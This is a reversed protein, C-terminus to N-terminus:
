VVCRCVYLLQWLQPKASNPRQTLRRRQRTTMFCCDMKRGPQFFISQRMDTVRHRSVPVCFYVYVCVQVDSWFADTRTVPRYQGAAVARRVYNILKIRAFFDLKWEDIMTALDFQHALRLHDVCLTSSPFNKDCFLCLVGAVTADDTWDDWNDDAPIATAGSAEEDACKTLLRAVCLSVIFSCSYFSEGSDGDSAGSAAAAPTYHVYNSLYFRDYQTCDARLQLHKKKRM